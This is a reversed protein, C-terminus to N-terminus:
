ARQDGFYADFEELIREAAEGIDSFGEVTVDSVATYVGEREKELRQLAGPGKSLPRDRTDLEHLPRIIRYVRGAERARRRNSERIVTGGGLAIVAGPLQVARLMAAEEADRFAAEGERLIWEEPTRGTMQTVLDDTSVFPRGTKEAIMRGAASKGSGPMGCLVIGTMAKKLARYAKEVTEEGPAEKLWIGESAAGQACLMWLGDGHPVGRAEAELVLRTKRPNYNLDLVGELAPFLGIDCPLGDIDPSMGVPTANVLVQTGTLTGLADFGIRGRRSVTTVARAGAQGCAYRVAAAAGGDGLVVINEDKLAIGAREAMSLFGSVDTNHGILRGDRREVTNVAGVAAAEPSLEDMLPLVARKYPITVNLGAWDGERVFRLADEEAMDRLEYGGLGLLDHLEPSLSHGLPHGLLGYKM